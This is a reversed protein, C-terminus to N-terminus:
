PGIWQASLSAHGVHVFSVTDIPNGASQFTALKVRDGAAARTVTAVPVATSSTASATAIHGGANRGDVVIRTQRVGDCRQRVHNEIGDTDM